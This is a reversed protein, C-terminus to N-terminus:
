QHSGKTTAQKPAVQLKGAARASARFEQGQPLGGLIESQLAERRVIDAVGEFDLAQDITARSAGPFTRELKDHREIHGQQKEGQSGNTVKEDRACEPQNQELCRRRPQDEYRQM